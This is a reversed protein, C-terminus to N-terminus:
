CEYSGCACAKNELLAVAEIEVLAEKPLDAVGVTARAPKHSSFFTAYIENVKAFDNVDKLYITTKIVHEMDSGAAEVVAQINKLTQKAQKEIGSALKETKPDVGVQGACFIFREVVVAQSYPGIPTPAKDTQVTKM